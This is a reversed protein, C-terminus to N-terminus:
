VNGSVARALRLGWWVIIFYSRCFLNYALKFFFGATNESCTKNFQYLLQPCPMLRLVM